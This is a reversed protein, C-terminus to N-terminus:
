GTDPCPIHRSAATILSIRLSRLKEVQFLPLLVGGSGRLLSSMAKKLVALGLGM